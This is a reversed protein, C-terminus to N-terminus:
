IASHTHALSWDAIRLRCDVIRKIREIVAVWPVRLLTTSAPIKSLLSEDLPEDRPEVTLVTASWGLRDLHKVFGLTRHTGSRNIPPFAYAICLWHARSM